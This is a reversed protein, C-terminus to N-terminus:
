FDPAIEQQVPLELMPHPALTGRHSFFDLKNRLRLKTTADVQNAPLIRGCYDPSALLRVLKAGQVPYTQLFRYGAYELFTDLVTLVGPHVPQNVVRALYCWAQDM